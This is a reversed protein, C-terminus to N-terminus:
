SKSEQNSPAHAAGLLECRHVERDSPGAPSAPSAESPAAHIKVCLHGEQIQIKQIKYGKCNETISTNKDRTADPILVIKPKLDQPEESKRKRRSTGM